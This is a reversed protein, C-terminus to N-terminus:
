NPLWNIVDRIHADWFDWNHVGPHKEFKLSVPLKEAKNYFATNTSFIFDETGCTM